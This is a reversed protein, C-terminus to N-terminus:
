RLSRRCSPNGASRLGIGRRRRCVALCRERLLPFLNQEEDAIHLPLATELHDLVFAANDCADAADLNDALRDLAACAIRQRDHEAYIFQICVGM